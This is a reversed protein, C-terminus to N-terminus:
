FVFRKSLTFGINDMVEYFNLNDPQTFFTVTCLPNEWELSVEVDLTLDDTLFSGDDDSDNRQAAFHALAELYLDPTLYKGVYLTTGDLYRALPSVDARSDDSFVVADYVLNEIINTHLSFTDLNLSSRISKQLSDDSTTIYGIRSLVDVGTSVLSVVSGLNSQGNESSIISQGLISMIENLDKAPSSEFSPNFNDLRAERLVLYIDVKDGSSDFDRLQARLNVTPEFGAGDTDRFTIDGERIFFSKQFYYIEGARLELSGSASFGGNSTSYFRIQQNEALYATLIPNPGLPYVVSVNKRLNLNFDFKSAAGEQWWEPLPYMGVSLQLNYADLEGYMDATRDVGYIRFYGNIDGIIDINQSTMPLRFTLENGPEVYADVRYDEFGLTPSLNFEVKVKGEKRQQTDTNVSTVATMMSKINNDWVLFYANHAILHDKPLWFIDLDLRDTWLSGYLHMDGVEGLLKLDGSALTNSGFVLIPSGFVFNISSFNFDRIGIDMELGDKYRGAIKLNVLPDLNVLLDAFGNFVELKGSILSGSFILSGDDYYFNSSRFGTDLSQDMSLSNVKVTGTMDGFGSLYLDKLFLYINDRQEAKISVGIDAFFPYPRDANDFVHSFTLPLEFIGDTSSIRFSPISLSSSPVSYELDDIELEKSNIFISGSLDVPHNISDSSVMSFGGSFSLDELTQGRGTLSVDLLGYGLNLRALSFSELKLLGSYFSEYGTLSLLIREEASELVLALDKKKLDAFLNGTMTAFLPSEFSINSVSIKENELQFDFVLDPAGPLHWMNDVSFDETWAKILQNEYDFVFRLSGDLICPSVAASPTPLAFGDFTLQIDFDDKWDILLGARENLVKVESTTFDMDIDFDYDTMSTTLVAQSMLHKVDEFNFLGSLSLTPVPPFSLNFDYKNGNELNLELLALKRGDSTKEVSLVGDPLLSHLDFSGNYSFRVLDSTLNFSLVDLSDSALYSSCSSGFNLDLGLLNVNGLAFAYDINGTYGLGSGPSSVLDASLNGNLLTEDTVYSVLSPAYSNIFPLFDAVRLDTLALLIDADERIEARLSLMTGYGAQLFVGDPGYSARVLFDQSLSPLRVDSIEVDAFDLSGFSGGVLNCGLLFDMGDLQEFRSALGVSSSLFVEYGDGLSVGADLGDLSVSSYIKKTYDAIMTSSMNNAHLQFEKDPLNGSIGIGSLKAIQRTRFFALGSVFGVSVDGNGISYSASLDSVSLAYESYSSIMMSLSLSLMDGDSELYAPYLRMFFEDGKGAELQMFSLSFPTKFLDETSFGSVSSSAALDEVYLSYGDKAADASSVSFRIGYAGGSGTVEANLGSLEVDIGDYFLNLGPIRAELRALGGSTSFSIFFEVDEFDTLGEIGADFDYVHVNFDLNQIGNASGDGSEADFNSFVASLGKIEELSSSATVGDMSITFSANGDFFDRVMDLLGSGLDLEDVHLIDRGDKSLVVDNLRVRNLLRRDMSAFSVAYGDVGDSFSALVKDVLIAAPSPINFLLVSSFSAFVFVLFVIFAILIIRIPSHYKMKAEDCNYNLHVM